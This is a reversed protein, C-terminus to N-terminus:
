KPGGKVGYEAFLRDAAEQPTARYRHGSTAARSLLILLIFIFGLWQM